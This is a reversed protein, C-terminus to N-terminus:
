RFFGELGIFIILYMGSDLISIYYRKSDKDFRWEMLARFAFLPSLAGIFFYPSIPNSFFFAWVFLGGLVLGVLALELRRQLKNVSIYVLNKTEIGLYKQVSRRVVLFLLSVIIFFLIQNLM